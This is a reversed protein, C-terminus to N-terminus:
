RPTEGQPAPFLADTRGLLRYALLGTWEHAALDLMGLRDPLGGLILVDPTFATKYAVPWPLVDWGAHRFLGVARPMHWASTILVWREGVAPHLAAKLMVANEYTTRSRDEFRIRAPDLGLPAFLQRAVDSETLDGHLLRGNGGTFALQAKPYRRALAVLTTMREAADNLAPMGHAATLETDVAGGLVIIGAVDPPPTAIRPFRDELPALLLLGVPLITVLTMGGLSVGLFILAGRRRRGIVCAFGALGLVLLLSSPRLLIWLLKGLLFM